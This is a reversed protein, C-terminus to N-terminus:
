EGIRVDVGKPSVDLRVGQATFKVTTDWDSSATLQKFAEVNVHDPASVRDERNWEYTKVL